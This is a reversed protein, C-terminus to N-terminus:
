FQLYCLRADVTFTWGCDALWATTYEDLTAPRLFERTELLHLNGYDGPPPIDTTDTTKM